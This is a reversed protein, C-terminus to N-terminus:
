PMILPVHAEILIRVPLGSREEVITFRRWHENPDTTRGSQRLELSISVRGERAAEFKWKKICNTLSEVITPFKQIPFNDPAEPRLGRSALSSRILDVRVARGEVLRVDLTVEGEVGARRLFEPYTPLCTCDQGLVSPVLSCIALCVSTVISSLSIKGSRPLM